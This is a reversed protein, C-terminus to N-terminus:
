VAGRSGDTVPCYCMVSYQCFPGIEVAMGGVDAELTTSWHLLVPLMVKPAARMFLYHYGHLSYFGLAVISISLTTGLMQMHFCHCLALVSDQLQQEQLLAFVKISM